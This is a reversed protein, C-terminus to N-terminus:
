WHAVLASPYDTVNHSHEDNADNQGTSQNLAQERLPGAGREGDVCPCATMGDRGINVADIKVPVETCAVIRILGRVDSSRGTNAGGNAAPAAVVGAGSDNASNLAM